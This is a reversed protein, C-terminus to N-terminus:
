APTKERIASHLTQGPRRLEIGHVFMWGGYILNFLGFLSAGSRAWGQQSEGNREGVQGDGEGALRSVGKRGCIGPQIPFFVIHRSKQWGDYTRPM